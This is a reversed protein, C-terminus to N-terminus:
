KADMNALESPVPQELALKKQGLINAIFYIFLAAMAFNIIIQILYNDKLFVIELGILLTNLIAAPMLVKWAFGMIQDIRLRPWTSRFWLLICTVLFTKLAFWVIGPILSFGSDGGLFLVTFFASTFIPALFESM